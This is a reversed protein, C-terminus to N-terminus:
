QKGTLRGAIQGREITGFVHLDQSMWRNDGIILYLNSGLRVPPVQWEESRTAYEEPLPADNIFVVGKTITVTEGPLGILRKLYLFRPNNGQVAVVDGRQPPTRWYALRNIWRIQGSHCTPEMSSGTIRVPTMVFRFMAILSGGLLALMAVQELTRAPQKGILISKWMPTPNSTPSHSDYLRM